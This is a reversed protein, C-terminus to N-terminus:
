EEPSFLDDDTEALQIDNRVRVFEGPAEHVIDYTLEPISKALVGIDGRDGAFGAVRVSHNWEFAWAFLKPNEPHRRIIAKFFTDAAIGHLRVDWTSIEKMFWRLRPNGWDSRRVYLLPFFDGIAFGGTEPNHKFCMFYFFARFHFHALRFVREESVQPPSALTFTIDGNGFPHRLKIEETSESVPKGTRRSGAKSAKRQVESVLRPDDIPYRGWGDPLMSIVSIDDELDAKTANCPACALAILNWQGDFCGRPVFRRGIVHEKTAAVNDGFALGCYICTKNRIVIARNAPHEILESLLPKM